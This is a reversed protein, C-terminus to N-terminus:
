KRKTKKDSSPFSILSHGKKRILERAIRRVTDANLSAIKPNQNSTGKVQKKKVIGKQTKPKKTDKLNVINVSTELLAESSSDTNSVASVSENKFGQDTLRKARKKHKFKFELEPDSHDESISTEITIVSPGLTSDLGLDSLKKMKKNLRSLRKKM